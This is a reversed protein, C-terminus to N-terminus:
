ENAIGKMQDFQRYMELMENVATDWNYKEVVAKYGNKGLKKSLNENSYLALVTEAFAIENESEYVLGCEELDILKQVSDCNTAVIPLEYYMYQFLKNSSSNDTQPTKKFPVLGIDAAKLFSKIEKQQKWGEFIVYDSVELENVLRHLKDREEGDGVLVLRINPIQLKINPMARIVHELGRNGIFGGVYLLVYNNSYKIEVNEDVKFNDFLNLRISNTTILANEPKVGKKILRDRIGESVTIVKDFLPLWEIENKEWKKHSVILNNPFRNPWDYDKIVEVYNEHMDGIFIGEWQKKLRQIVGFTYLDHLHIADYSTHKFIKKIQNEIKWDMWPIMGALGHMKNLWYKPMASRYITYGNYHVTESNVYDGISLIGVKHGNEVLIEAENEIRIDTPIKHDVVM